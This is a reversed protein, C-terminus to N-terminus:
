ILYQCNSIILDRGGHKNHFDSPTAHKKSTFVEDQVPIAPQIDAIYTFIVRDSSIYNNVKLKETKFTCCKKDLTEAADPSCHTASLGCCGGSDDSIPTFIGTNVSVGCSHCSKIVITAGTTGVLLVISLLASIVPLIIKGRKVLVFIFLIETLFIVLSL